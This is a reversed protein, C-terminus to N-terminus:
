RQCFYQHFGLDDNWSYVYHMGPLNDIKIESRKWGVIKGVDNGIKECYYQHFGLDDTWSYEFQVGLNRIKM